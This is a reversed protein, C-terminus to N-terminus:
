DRKVGQRIRRPDGHREPRGSLESHRRGLGQPLEGAMGQQFEKALDPFAKTYETFKANWEAEAQQGTEVARRFHALAEDPIYFTPDLPWGLAQKTLKVEKDGLPSGHAEFTDQKNPSGYGLHTHVLILSPREKETQRWVCRANLRQWIMGM